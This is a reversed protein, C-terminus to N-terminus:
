FGQLDARQLSQLAKLLMDPRKFTPLIVSLNM